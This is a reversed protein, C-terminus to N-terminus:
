RKEISNFLGAFWENAAPFYNERAAQYLDKVGIKTEEFKKAFEQKIGPARKSVEGQVFDGANDVSCGIGAIFDQPVFVIGLVVVIAFAALRVASLSM